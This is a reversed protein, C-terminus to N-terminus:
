PCVFLVHYRGQHILFSSKVSETVQGVVSIGPRRIVQFGPAFSLFWNFGLDTMLIVWLKYYHSESKKVM